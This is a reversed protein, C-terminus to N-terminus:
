KSNKPYFTLQNYTGDAWQQMYASYFKSGPHGSQGGPYIGYAKIGNPDMDVVMRWSPGKRGQMANLTNYDGGTPLNTFSFAAQESLHKVTTQKSLYWAGGNAAKVKEFSDTAQKYSEQVLAGMAKGAITELIPKNAAVSDHLLLQLTVADDPRVLAPYRGLSSQWINRGLTYWLIHFFTADKSDKSLLYPHQQDEWKLQPVYLQIAPYLQEALMSYASNQLQMMDEVGISRASDSLWQQLTRNLYWGRWEAFDGNYWYPYTNDTVNQNASAVYGQQPNWVHPNDKMPIDNGWITKSTSGNMVYKGQDKWKNIFRGQAWLAINGHRDAYAFNQAPCTFNSIASTFAEYNEARNLAYFAKLENSPRHAMWQMALLKGSHLPDPFSSDYQVPGQITYRVSDIYANDEDRIYIEERSFNYPVEQEDYIYYRPDTAQKIEYYDKVDRANNTFGWAISDNFGIVVSPIGPFSVGYSNIGPATLQVEYWLSPLNLQLHPDNCLIAGGSKTRQGSIAWNNSGIGTNREEQYGAAAVLSDKLTFTAWLKAVPTIAPMQSPAPFLTGAPIVPSSGQVKEPYLMDFQEQPFIEKLYSYAIDDSYGTLKDAMFKIILVSKLNTWEEPKFDMMKYEFPYDMLRLSAIYTNVGRTYNDLMAKTQADQEMMKLANKAAFVMGKRRQLRDYELTKRGAVESLRGGAARAQMDMQWLRYYAHVYGMAFYLDADNQAAIHPVLRQDFTVDVNSRLEQQPIHMERGDETVAVANKWFGKVPGFFKGLPPTSGWHNNLFFIWAASLLLAIAALLIRRM